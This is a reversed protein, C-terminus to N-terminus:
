LRCFRGYRWDCDLRSRNGVARHEPLLQSLAEIPWGEGQIVQMAPTPLEHGGIVAIQGGIDCAAARDADRLWGTGPDLAEPTAHDNADGFSTGAGGADRGIGNM